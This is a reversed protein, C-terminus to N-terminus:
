ARRAQRHNKSVNERNAGRAIRARRPLGRARVLKRRRPGSHRRGSPVRQRVAIGRVGALPRRARRQDVIDNAHRDRALAQICLASAGPLTAPRHLDGPAGVGKRSRRTAAPVDGSSFPPTRSTSSLALSAPGNGDPTGFSTNARTASMLFVCGASTFQRPRGAPEAPSWMRGIPRISPRAAPSRTTAIPSVLSTSGSTRCRTARM